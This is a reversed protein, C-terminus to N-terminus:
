SAGRLIKVFHFLILSYLFEPPLVRIPSHHHPWPRHSHQLILACSRLASGSATTMATTPAPIATPMMGGTNSSTSNFWTM